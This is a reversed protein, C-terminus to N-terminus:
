SIRGLGRASRSRSRAPRRCRQSMTAPNHVLETRLSDSVIEYGAWSSILADLEEPSLTAGSPLETMIFAVPRRERRVLLAVGSQEPALRFEALPQTLERDAIAYSM